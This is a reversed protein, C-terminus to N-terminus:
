APAVLVAVSVGQGEGHGRVCGAVCRACGSIRSNKQFQAPASGGIFPVTCPSRVASGAWM